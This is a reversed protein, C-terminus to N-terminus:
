RDIPHASETQEGSVCLRTKCKVIDQKDHMETVFNDKYRVFYVDVNNCGQMQKENLLERIETEQKTDARFVLVLEAGSHM